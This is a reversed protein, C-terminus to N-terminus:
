DGDGSHTERDTKRWRVFAKQHLAPQRQSRAAQGTALRRRQGYRLRVVEPLHLVIRDILLLLLLALLLVVLLGKARLVPQQALELELEVQEGDGLYQELQHDELLDYFEDREETQQEENGRQLRGTTAATTTAM